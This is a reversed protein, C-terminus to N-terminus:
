FQRNKFKEIWSLMTKLEVDLGPFLEVFRRMADACIPQWEARLEEIPLAKQFHFLSARCPEDRNLNIDLDTTVLKRGALSNAQLIVQVEEGLGYEEVFRVTFLFMETISFISPKFDLWRGPGVNPESPNGHVDRWKCEYTTQNEWYPRVCLFQGSRTLTWTEGYTDNCVGWERMHTGRHSAPFEDRLRVSRRRIIEELQNADPWREGEYGSPRVVLKWAGSALQKAYPEGLQDEISKLEDDFQEKDSPGRLLPKGKLMSEFMSLMENGRKSTALGILTRLEEVTGLPTSEANANRIYITRERLLHKKPNSPDQFSKTCLIPVDDFEAVTIVVFRKGDHQQSHCVLRVSPSFRSNVWSAVKTTEFSNAEDETLGTMEFEGPKKEKKGLVIVGGDRSNAFSVIDKSLSASAAGRDWSMSGKADINDSEGSVEIYRIIETSSYNM